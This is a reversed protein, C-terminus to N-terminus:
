VEAMLRSSWHTGHPPQTELTIRVIEDGVDSTIRRPRGTRPRDHDIGELGQAEYRDLWRQVKSRSLGLETSIQETSAGDASALLIRARETLRPPLTRSRVRGELIPRDGSQLQIIRPPRPM